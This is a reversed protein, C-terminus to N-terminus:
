YLTVYMLETRLIEGFEEVQDYISWKAEPRNYIVKGNIFLEKM